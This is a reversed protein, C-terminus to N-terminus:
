QGITEETACYTKYTSELYALLVGKFPSDPLRRTTEIQLLLSECFSSQEQDAHARAPMLVLGAAIVTAFAFAGLSRRITKM